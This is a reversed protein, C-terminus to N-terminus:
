ETLVRANAPIFRLPRDKFDMVVNMYEIGKEAAKGMMLFLVEKTAEVDDVADHRYDHKIGHRECTPALSPSEKPEVLKTLARTCIFKHPHWNLFSLDFPAYQCVLISDGIFEFLMDTVAFHSIGTSCLEKTIQPTYSSPEKGKALRVYSSLRALENGNVDYKIACVQTPQDSGVPQNLGTTEFDLVTFTKTM